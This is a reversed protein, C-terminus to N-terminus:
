KRKRSTKTVPIDPELKEYDLSISQKIFGANINDLVIKRRKAGETLFDIDDLDNQKIEIEAKTLLGMQIMQYIRPTIEIDGEFAKNAPISLNPTLDIKRGSNNILKIM